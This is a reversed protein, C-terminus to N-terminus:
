AGAQDVARAYERPRVLASELHVHADILGPCVYRGELDVSERGRYAGGVGVVLPGAIAIATPESRGSLVDVLRANTLVLDAPEDGRAIAVRQSLTMPHSM